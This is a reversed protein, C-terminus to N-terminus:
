TVIESHADYRKGTQLDRLEGRMIRTTAPAEILIRVADGPYYAPRLKHIHIIAPGDVVITEGVARGLVLHPM